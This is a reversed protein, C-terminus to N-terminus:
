GEGLGVNVRVQEWNVTPNPFPPHATTLYQCQDTHRFNYSGYNIEVAASPQPSFYIYIQVIPPHPLSPRFSPSPLAREGVTWELKEDFMTPRTFSQASTVNVRAILVGTSCTLWSTSDIDKRKWCTGWRPSVNVVTLARQRISKNYFYTRNVNSAQEM